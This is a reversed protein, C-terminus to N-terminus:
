AEGNSIGLNHALIMILRDLQQIEENLAKLQNVYQGFRRTEARMEVALIRFVARERAERLLRILIVKDTRNEVVFPVESM